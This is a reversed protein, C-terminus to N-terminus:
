RKPTLIKVETACVRVVLERFAADNDPGRYLARMSRRPGSPM